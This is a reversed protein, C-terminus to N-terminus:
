PGRRLGDPPLSGGKNWAVRLRRAGHWDIIGFEAPDIPM